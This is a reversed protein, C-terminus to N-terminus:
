LGNLLRNAAAEVNNDTSQLAVLARERDFGLAMLQEIADESPPPPPAAAMQPPLMGGGAGPLLQDRFGQGNAM